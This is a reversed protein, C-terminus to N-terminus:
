EEPYQDGLNVNILLGADDKKTPKTPNTRAARAQEEAMEAIEVQEPTHALRSMEEAMLRYVRAVNHAAEPPVCPGIRLQAFRQDVTGLFPNVRIVQGNADPFLTVAYGPAYVFVYREIDSTSAVDFGSKSWAPLKFKGQGDARVSEAWICSLHSRMNTRTGQWIGYVMANSLPKGSVGDVVQGEIPGGSWSVCAELTTLSTLCSVALVIRYTRTDM